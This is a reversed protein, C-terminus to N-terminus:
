TWILIKVDVFWMAVIWEKTLEPKEVELYSATIAIGASPNYVVCSFRFTSSIKSIVAKFEFKWVMGKPAQLKRYGRVQSYTLLSFPQAKNQM